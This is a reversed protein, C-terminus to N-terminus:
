ATVGLELYAHLGDQWPPLVPTDSRASRLV